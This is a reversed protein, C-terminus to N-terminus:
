RLASLWVAVDGALAINAWLLVGVAFLLTVVPFLSGREDRGAPPSRRAAPLGLVILPVLVVTLGLWLGDAARGCLAAPVALLVVPTLWVALIRSVSTM